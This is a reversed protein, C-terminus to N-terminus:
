QKTMGDYGRGNCKPCALMIKVVTNRKNDYVTGVTSGTGNCRDCKRVTWVSSPNHKKMKSEQAITNGKVEVKKKSSTGSDESHSSRFEEYDGEDDSEAYLHLCIPMALLVIVMFMKKLM